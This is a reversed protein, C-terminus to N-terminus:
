YLFELGAFIGDNDSLDLGLYAQLKPQFWYRVDGGIYVDDFDGTRIGLFGGFKWHRDLVYHAGGRLDLGSGTGGRGAGDVDVDARLYALDALFSLGQVQTNIPLNMGLGLRLIDTDVPSDSLLSYSGFGYVDPTILFSGALSVGTGAERSDLYAGLSNYNNQGMALASGSVALLLGAMLTKRM